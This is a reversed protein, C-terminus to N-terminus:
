PRNSTIAETRKQNSRTAESQEQDKGLLEGVAEEDHAGGEVVDRQELEVRRVGGLHLAEVRRYM